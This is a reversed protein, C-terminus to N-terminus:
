EREKALKTPDIKRSALVKSFTDDAIEAQAKLEDAFKEFFKEDEPSHTYAYHILGAKDAAMNFAHQDIKTLAHNIETTTAHEDDLRVAARGLPGLPYGRDSVRRAITRMIGAMKTPWVATPNKATRGAISVSYTTGNGTGSHAHVTMVNPSKSLYNIDQTSIPLGSPHNHHFDHPIATMEDHLEDSVPVNHEGGPIVTIQAGESLDGGKQVLVGYERHTGGLQVVAEQAQRDLDAPKGKQRWQEHEPATSSPPRTAGHHRKKTAEEYNHVIENAGKTWRGGEKTGKPERPHKAEDFEATFPDIWAATIPAKTVPDARLRIGPGDREFISWEQLEAPLESEDEVTWPKPVEGWNLEIYNRRNVAVSNARMWAVLPDTGIRHGTAM